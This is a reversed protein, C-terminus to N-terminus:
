IHGDLEEYLYNLREELLLRYEELGSDDTNRPVYLERDFKVLIKSFPKPIMFRDWSNFVWKKKPSIIIPLIPMGSFRAIMIIGPKVIGFPGKPGDVIHGMSYGSISLRKMEKLAKVGGRTSSGRVPHWGLFQLIRAIFDGDKSQSVIIAIPKRKALFTVGLFLRQHWSTYIPFQGRKYIKSEIEQDIIEIRYTLSLIKILVLGLVPLIYRYLFRKM